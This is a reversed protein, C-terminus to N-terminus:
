HKITPLIIPSRTMQMQRWTEEPIQRVDIGTQIAMEYGNVRIPTNVTLVGDAFTLNIQQAIEVKPIAPQRRPPKTPKM